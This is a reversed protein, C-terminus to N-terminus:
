FVKDQKQHLNAGTSLCQRPNEGLFYGFCNQSEKDNEQKKFDLYHSHTGALPDLCFKCPSECYGDKLLRKYRFYYELRICEAPTLHDLSVM